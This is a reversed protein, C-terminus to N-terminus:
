YRHQPSWALLTALLGAVLEVLPLDRSLTPGHARRAVGCVTGFLSGDPSNVPAGVYAAVKFGQVMQLGAYAPVAAVVGAARPGEGSVMRRCLANEWSLPTGEAILGTPYAVLVVQDAGQVKTMLWLDLGVRAHLAALAASAAEDFSAWPPGSLPQQAM